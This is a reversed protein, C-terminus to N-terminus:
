KASKNKNKNKNQPQQRRRANRNLVETVPHSIMRVDRAVDSVIPINMASLVNAVPDVIHRIVDSLGSAAHRFFDGLSNHDVPYGPKLQRSMIEYAHLAAPDCKPALSSVTIDDTNFPMPAIEVYVKLVINLTTESSLGNFYAGCQDTGWIQSRRSSHILDPVGDEVQSLGGTSIVRYSDPSGDYLPFSSGPPGVMTTAYVSAESFNNDHADIVLPVLAGEAATHTVSELLTASGPTTPPYPLYQTGPQYYNELLADPQLAVAGRISISPDSPHTNGQRYCTVSGQKNIEATTNYVKFAGGILRTRKTASGTFPVPLQEFVELNDPSDYSQATFTGANYGSAPVQAQASNKMCVVLSGGPCYRPTDENLIITNYSELSLQNGGPSQSAMRRDLTLGSMCASRLSNTTTNDDYEDTGELQFPLWAIHADWNSDALVNPKAINAQVEYERVFTRGDYGTPMGIRDVPRHHFPDLALKVWEHGKDTAGVSKSGRHFERDDRETIPGVRSIKPSMVTTAKNAIQEAKSM